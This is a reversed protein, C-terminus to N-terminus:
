EANRRFLLRLLPFIGILLFPLGLGPMFWAGAYIGPEIVVEDTNDPNYFVTMARGVPYPRIAEEVLSVMNTDVSGIKIQSGVKIRDGVKYDYRIFPTYYVAGESDRYQDVYSHTVVASTSTWQKSAHAHLLQNIGASLAVVGVISFILHFFFRGM